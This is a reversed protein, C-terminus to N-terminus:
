LFCFHEVCTVFAESFTLISLESVLLITRASISATVLGLLPRAGAVTNTRMGPWSLVSWVTQRMAVGADAVDTLSVDNSTRGRPRRTVHANDVGADIDITVIAPGILSWREIVLILIETGKENSLSDAEFSPVVVVAEPGEVDGDQWVMRVASHNWRIPPRQCVSHVLGQSMRPSPLLEWKRIVHLMEKSSGALGVCM